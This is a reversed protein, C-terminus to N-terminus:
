KNKVCILATVTKESFEVAFDTNKAVRAVVIRWASRWRDLDILSVLTCLYVHTSSSMFAKQHLTNALFLYTSSYLLLCLQRPDISNFVSSYCLVRREAEWYIPSLLLKRIRWFFASGSHFVFCACNRSPAFEASSWWSMSKPCSEPLWWFNFTTVSLFILFSDLFAKVLCM